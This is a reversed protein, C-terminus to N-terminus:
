ANRNRWRLILAFLCFSSAGLYAAGPFYVPAGAKTFLVFLPTFVLPAIVASLSGLSVLSGQVEGQRNPPIHHAIISQLAPVTVGTIAILLVIAYMMWGRTAVAFLAYILAYASLGLTLARQEGLRPILVRTMVGQGFAFMIGVFALSMGVERSTWGFKLQTYLTWNVPHIQMAILLLFYIWVLGVIESPQLIKLISKFPNLKKLEVHRRHEESLSEPLVFLGYLFNLGNLAAAALFPVTAGYTGLLGGTLPGIIFGLGWAAGIMGFNASRNSKDSIDAMYSSAVTMSAGTMGSIARGLFLLPLNPAFAMFLYDLAAGLLSGLLISRRGYRDSLSGLVPSAAFQMLAYTGIFLGFYRSVFDPESSFRRLVDPLVPIILGIGIADLLITVFIFPVAARRSKRDM